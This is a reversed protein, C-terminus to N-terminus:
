DYYCKKRMLLLKRKQQKLEGIVKKNIKINEINRKYAKSQSEYIDQTLIKDKKLKTLKTKPGILNKNGCSTLINITQLYDIQETLEKIKINLQKMKKLYADRQPRILKNKIKNIKRKRSNIKNDYYQEIIEQTLISFNEADDQHIDNNMEYVIKNIDKRYYIFRVFIVKNSCKKSIIQGYLM